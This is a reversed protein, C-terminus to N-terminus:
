ERWGQLGSYIKRISRDLAEVVDSVTSRERETANDVYPQINRILNDRSLAAFLADKEDDNLDLKDAILHIIAFDNPLRGGSLWQSIANPRVYIDNALQTQSVDKRRLYLTLIEAFVGVTKTPEGQTQRSM